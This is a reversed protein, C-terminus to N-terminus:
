DERASLIEFIFNTDGRPWTIDEIYYVRFFHKFRHMDASMEWPCGVVTKQLIDATRLLFCQSSNEIAQPRSCIELHGNWEHVIKLSM